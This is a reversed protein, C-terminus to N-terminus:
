KFDTVKEIINDNIVITVRQVHNGWMAMSKKEIFIVFKWGTFSVRTYQVSHRCSARLCVFEFYANSFV